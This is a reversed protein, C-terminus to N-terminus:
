FWVGAASATLRRREAEQRAEVTASPYAPRDVVALGVLDAATVVEVGEPSMRADRVFYEASLGRLVGARVLALANDAEPHQPLDARVTLAEPSDTLTLGAGTRTLPRARDHQINLLVDLAGVDAGFAGPEIREGYGPAVEGYAILTGELLRTEGDQRLTLPAYRYRTDPVNDM